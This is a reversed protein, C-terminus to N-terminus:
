WGDGGWDDKKEDAKKGDSVGNAKEVAGWSMDPPDEALKDADATWSLEETTSGAQAAWSDAPTDDTTGWGGADATEDTGGGGWGGSEAPTDESAGWNDSQAPESSAGWGGSETAADDKSESEKETDKADSSGWGGSSETGAGWGSSSETTAGAGWDSSAGTGWDSQAETAAPEAKKKSSSKKKDSKEPSSKEPTDKKGSKKEKKEPSSARPSASKKDSKKEPPSASVASVEAAISDSSPQYSRMSVTDRFNVHRSVEQVTSDSMASSSSEIVANNLISSADGASVFTLSESTENRSQSTDTNGSFIEGITELLKSQAPPPIVLKEVKKKKPESPTETNV